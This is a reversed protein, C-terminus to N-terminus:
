KEHQINIGCVKSYLYIDKLLRKSKGSVKIGEKELELKIDETKKSRIEDIHKRVKIIDKESIRRHKKLNVKRSERKDNKKKSNKKSSRKNKRSIGKSKQIPKSIDKQVKVMSQEVKGRKNSEMEREVENIDKINISKNGTLKHKSKKEKQRIIRISPDSVKQQPSMEKKPSKRNITIKKGENRHITKKESKDIGPGGGENQLYLKYNLSRHSIKNSGGGGTLNKKKIQIDSHIHNSLQKMDIDYIYINKIQFNPYYNQIIM